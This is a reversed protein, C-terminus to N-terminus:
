KGELNKIRDELDRIGEKLEWAMKTMERQQMKNLNTGDLNATALGAKALRLKRKLSELESM